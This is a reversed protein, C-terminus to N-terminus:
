VVVPWGSGDLVLKNIGLRAAGANDYYHYVLLDGDVDRFVSQGGPGHIGDHGGLIETGGGNALNVGNKDFFPGNSSQSRGVMIHYTSAAGQCCRDWSVFLYWFAGIKHMYAGEVAGDNVTRTALRTRANDKPHGTTPDLVISFIGSGFSGYTLRWNNGDIVLGPDIANLADGNNSSVVLGHDVWSGSRGTASTALYIASRRSYLTSCSYYLIFQGHAYSVDPAWLNKDEATWTDCWPAGNPFVVGADVFNTRDTSTKISIGPATAFVYYTNGVKIMSPDHVFTAGQVNGPGPYASVQSIAGAISAISLLSAFLKM